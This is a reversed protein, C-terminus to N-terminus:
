FFQMASLMIVITPFLFIFVFLLVLLTIKLASKPYDGGLTGTQGNMINSYTKNKLMFNIRYLPLMIYSYQANSFNNDMTFSDIGDYHYEKLIEKKIDQKMINQAQKYADVVSNNYYELDYGYVYDDTYSQAQNTTYPRVLNLEYQTLKSSAEIEIGNHQTLKTGSINFYKRYTETNGDKDKKTHTTYLRGSFKSQCNANFVFAPFYYGHIEKASVNKKFKSPAFWKNKIRDKFMQAAKDKGFKFPLIADPKLGNFKELSVVLDSNCYPCSSAAQFKNLVVQAGCNPCSMAKNQEAWQTNKDTLTSNVDHKEVNTNIPIVRSNKCSPCVVCNADPNFVMDDGCGSCKNLLAKVKKNM